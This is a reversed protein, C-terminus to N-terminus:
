LIRFMLLENDKTQSIEKWGHKLDPFNGEQSNATNEVVCPWGVPFTQSQVKESGNEHRRIHLMFRISLEMGTVYKTGKGRPGQQQATAWAESDWGRREWVNNENQEERIEM